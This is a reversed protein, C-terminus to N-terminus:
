NYLNFKKMYASSLKKDTRLFKVVKDLNELIETGIPGFDDVHYDIIHIDIINGHEDFEYIIYKFDHIRKLWCYLRHQWKSLYSSKGKYNGTTKIDVILGDLYDVHTPLFVDMKGYLCFEKGDFDVIKKTKAQFQGGPYHILDYATMFKEHLDLSIEAIPNKKNCIKDEWAIGRKIADTPNWVRNLMDLLSNYARVKWSDPSKNLWDISDWLTPTMLLAM